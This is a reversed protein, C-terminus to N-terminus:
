DSDTDNIVIKYNRSEKTRKNWVKNERAKAGTKNWGSPRRNLTYGHVRIKNLHKILIPEGNENVVYNTAYISM